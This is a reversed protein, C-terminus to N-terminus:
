LPFIKEDSMVFNLLNAIAFNQTGADEFIYKKNLSEWIETAIKCPCYVDFLANSLTSLIIHKCIKNTKEWNQLEKEKEPKPDTIAFAYLWNCWTHVYSKRAM